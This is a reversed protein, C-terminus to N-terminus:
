MDKTVTKQTRNLVCKFLHVQQVIAYSSEAKTSVLLWKESFTKDTYVGVLLARSNWNDWMRALLSCRGDIEDKDHQDTGAQM